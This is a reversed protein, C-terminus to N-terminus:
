VIDRWGTSERSVLLTIRASDEKEWRPLLRDMLESRWFDKTEAYL